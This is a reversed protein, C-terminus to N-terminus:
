GSMDTLVSSECVHMDSIKGQPGPLMGSLCVWLLLAIWRHNSGEKQVLGRQCKSKGWHSQTELCCASGVGGLGGWRLTAGWGWPGVSAM